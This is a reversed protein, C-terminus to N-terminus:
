QQYKTENKTTITQLFVCVCVNQRLIHLLFRLLRCYLSLGFDIPFPHINCLSSSLSAYLCDNYPCCFGNSVCATSLSWSRSWSSLCFLVFLYLSVFIVRNESWHIRFPAYINYYIYVYDNHNPLVSKGYSFPSHTFPMNIGYDKSRWWDLLLSVVDFSLRLWVPLPLDCLFVCHSKYNIRFSFYVLRAFSLILFVCVCVFRVHKWVQLGILKRQDCPPIWILIFLFKSKFVLM